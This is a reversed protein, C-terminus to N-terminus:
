RSTSSNFHILADWHVLGEPTAFEPSLEAVLRELTEERKNRYLADYPKNGLYIRQLLWAYFRDDGSIETWFAQGAIERFIYQQSPVSSRTGYAYGVVCDLKKPSKSLRHQLAIFNTNQRKKSDANFVSPGSKVAIAKFMTGTEIVIDVGNPAVSTGGSVALAVPEFFTNGFITEESSSLFATLIREALDGLTEVGSAAFLYPNKKRLLDIASLRRLRDLRKEQFDLLCQQVKLEMVAYDVPEPM